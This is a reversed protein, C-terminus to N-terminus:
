PSDFGLDSLRKARAALGRYIMQVDVDSFPLPHHAMRSFDAADWRRKMVGSAAHQDSRQLIHGIEHALVHALLVPRPCLSEAGALRDFFLRVHVGEFPLSYALAGPYLDPPTQMSISVLIPGAERRCDTFGEWSLGVGISAFMQRTIAQALGIVALRDPIKEM